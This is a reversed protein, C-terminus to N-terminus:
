EVRKMEAGIDAHERWSTIVSSVEQGIGEVGRLDSGKAALISTASGFRELLRGFRVPGVQPLMNLVVAAETETM